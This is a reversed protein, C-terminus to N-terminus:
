RGFILTIRNGTNLQGRTCGLLSGKFGDTRHLLERHFLGFHLVDDRNRAKTECPLPLIHPQTKNWEFIPRFAGGCARIGRCHSSFDRPRHHLLHAITKNERQGRRGNRFQAATRAKGETQLVSTTFSM